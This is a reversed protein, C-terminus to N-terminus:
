PSLRSAAAAEHLRSVLGSEPFCSSTPGAVTALLLVAAHSAAAAAPETDEDETGTDLEDEAEEVAESDAADADPV